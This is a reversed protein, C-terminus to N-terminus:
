TVEILNFSFFFFCSRETYPKNMAWQYFVTPTPHATNRVIHPARSTHILPHLPLSPPASEMRMRPRPLSQWRDSGLRQLPHISAKKMGTKDTFEKYLMLPGVIIMGAVVWTVFLSVPGSLSFPTPPWAM